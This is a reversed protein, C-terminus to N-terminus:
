RTKLESAKWFTSIALVSLQHTIILSKNGGNNVGVEGRVRFTIRIVMVSQSFDLKHRCNTENACIKGSSHGSVKLFALEFKLEWLLPFKKKLGKYPKLM